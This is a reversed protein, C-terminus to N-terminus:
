GDSAPALFEVQTTMGWRLRPDSQNPRIDMTYFIDGDDERSILDISEVYGSLALDALANFEVMVQQDVGIQVIQKESIKSVEIKWKSLDAIIAFPTGGSLWEGPKTKLDVLIGNMPATIQAEQLAMKAAALRAEALNLHAQAAELEDPDPGTLLEHRQQGLQNLRALIQDLQTQALSLDIEDPPALLDKYKEQADHYHRQRAAVEQELLTLRLKYQRQNIFRWILSKKNKFRKQAKELDEQAIKLRSESLKLNAYAQEIQAQFRPKSISKYHDQAFALAKQAEAISLEVEALIVPNTEYLTNLAQRALLVELEASAVEAASQEYGDLVLLLDGAKVQQGEYAFIEAVRRGEPLSLSVFQAPVLKGEAQLSVAESAVQVAEPFVPEPSPAIQWGGLVLSILLLLAALSAQRLLRHKNPM